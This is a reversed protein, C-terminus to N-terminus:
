PVRLGKHHKYFEAAKRFHAQEESVKIERELQARIDAFFDKLDFGDIHYFGGFETVLSILRGISRMEEPLGSQVYPKVVKCVFDQRKSEGLPQFSGHIVAGVSAEALIRDDFRIDYRRLSEEGADKEVYAVVEDRTMTRIGTELTQLSQQIDPPIAQMRAIVQGVKQLTPIKSAFILIKEGRSADQAMALAVARDVIRENSLGDLFALLADHIIPGYDDFYQKPVVALVDSSHLLIELIDAKYKALGVVRALQVVVEPKMRPSDGVEAGSRLFEVVRKRTEPDFDNWVKVMSELGADLGRKLLEESETPPLNETNGRYDLFEVLKLIQPGFDKIVKGILEIEAREVNYTKYHDRPTPLNLSSQGKAVSALACILTTCVLVNRTAKFM